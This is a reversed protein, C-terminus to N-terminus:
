ADVAESAAVAISCNVAVSKRLAKSHEIEHMTQAFFYSEACRPCSRM